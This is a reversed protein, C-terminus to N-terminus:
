YVVTFASATSLFTYRYFLKAKINVTEIQYMSIKSIQCVPLIDKSVAYKERGILGLM